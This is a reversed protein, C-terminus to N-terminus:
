LLKFMEHALVAALLISKQQYGNYDPLKIIVGNEKLLRGGKILLDVVNAHYAAPFTEEEGM